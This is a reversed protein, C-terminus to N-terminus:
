PRQRRAQGRGKASKTRPRGLRGLLGGKRPPGCTVSPAQPGGPQGSPQLTESPRDDAGDADSAGDAEDPQDMEDEDEDENLDLAALQDLSSISDCVGCARQSGCAGGLGCAGGSISPSASGCAHESDRESWASVRSDDSNRASNSPRSASFWRKSDKSSRPAAGREVTSPKPASSSSPEPPDPSLVMNIPPAAAARQRWRM